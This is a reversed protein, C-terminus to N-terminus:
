GLKREVAVAGDVRSRLSTARGSWGDGALEKRELVSRLLEAVGVANEESGFLVGGLRQSNREWKEVAYVLWKVLLQRNDSSNWPGEHAYWLTELTGIMPEFPAQLSEFVDIPFEFPPPVRAAPPPPAPMGIPLAAPQPDQSTYYRVYYVLLMSLIAGVPFVAESSSVRRATARVREIVAEWPVSRGALEADTHAQDIVNSWTSAIDSPNRYDAAFYIFICIDYYGAQDAYQNYLQLVWILQVWAVDLLAACPM